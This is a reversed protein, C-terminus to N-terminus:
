RIALGNATAPVSVNVKIRVLSGYPTLRFGSLAAAGSDLTYLHRGDSSAVMDLPGAGTTAAIGSDNLLMVSGDFAVRYGSVNNTLTNTTYVFRGDNSVVAWCAASQGSAVADSILVLSGDKSLQYSSLTSAGEAGGAAESVLIQDREAFAFGFPTVGASPFLNATGAVGSEDVTFTVLLNTAKETVVLVDGDGNFSIQAPGVNDGSLLQTAGAIPTLDGEESLRFGAINDIGGVAGGSNLVYLVNGSYTLSIPQLGGSPEVDVLTLGAEGVAFVSIDSSGANVAFLWRNGTDLIVGGQNGLGTGSGLGGTAFEGAPWLRGNILRNFMLVSNGEAANSMTYVAGIVKTSAEAMLPLLSAMVPAILLRTVRLFFKNHTM